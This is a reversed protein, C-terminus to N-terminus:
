MLFICLSMLLSLIWSALCLCSSSVFLCILSRICTLPHLHSPSPTTHPPTHPTSTYSPAFCLCSPLSIRIPILPSPHLHTIIPSPTHLHTTPPTYHTHIHSPILHKCTNSICYTWRRRVCVHMCIWVCVCWVDACVCLVCVDAVRVCVCVCM